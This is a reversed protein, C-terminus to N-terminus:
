LLHLSFCYARMAIRYMISEDTLGYYKNLMARGRRAAARVAPLKEDDGVYDDLARTIIDFVPITHHLLPKNSQSILKTAELFVELLPYLQGLLDWEQKSLKFRQLRVGRSGKNHQELNVLLTLPERLKLARGILKAM